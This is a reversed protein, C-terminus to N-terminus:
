EQTIRLRAFIKGQGAPLTYSLTTADNVAPTVVTWDGPASGLNASTQIAYVIDDNTVAAARKTFTLTGSALTGSLTNSATPDFGALAYEVLNSIGDKDPDATAAKDGPSLGPFTDMYSSFGGAPAGAVEIKGDGLILGGSNSSDYIGPAKSVGDLFLSGVVDTGTHILELKADGDISLAGTDSLVPFDMSLFGEDVTTNGTYTNQGLFSLNGGGSKIVNGSGTLAGFFESNDGNGGIDLTVPAGATDELTQAVVNSSALIGVRFAGTNAASTFSVGNAETTLIQLKANQLADLHNIQLLRDTAHAITGGGPQIVNVTGTFPNAASLRVIGRDAGGNATGGVNIVASGSIPAGFDLTECNASSTGLSGVMADAQSLVSGTLLLTASSTGGAQDINGGDLILNIALTQLSTNGANGAGAKGLLRGGASITLSSGGFTLSQPVLTAPTRMTFAGTHYNNPVTPVGPSSWNGIDGNLSTTVTATAPDNNIMFVNEAVPPGTYVEISGSGTIYGGSTGEGYIGAPQPVGNLVLAAVKDVTGHELSVTAGSAITLTSANALCEQGLFLTGANVTTNGSYVNLGALSLTGTGSKILNGSGAIPGSYTTDANNSGVDLTIPNGSTDTLRQFSSGSLAGLRFNGTNVAAAFSVPNPATTALEVTANQLADLNNLALLRFTLSSVADPQAVTITGLYDPNASSIRTIGTNDGGNITGAVTLDASGSITATIDLTESNANNSLSGAAGITSNSNVTIMGTVTLSYTTTSANAQYFAGGNLILGAGNTFSITQTGGSKGLLRGGSDVSLSDGAFVYAPQGTTTPTRITFNATFYDNGATPVSTNDWFGASIFSSNGVADSNTMTVDAALAGSALSLVCVAFVPLAAIQFKRPKM